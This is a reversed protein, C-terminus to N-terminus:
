RSEEEGRLASKRIEGDLRLNTSAPAGGRAISELNAESPDVGVDIPHTRAAPLRLVGGPEILASFDPLKSVDGALAPAIGALVEGVPGLVAVLTQAVQDLSAASSGGTPVTEGSGSVSNISTM